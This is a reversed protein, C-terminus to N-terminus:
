TCFDYLMFTSAACTLPMCAAYTTHVAICPSARVAAPNVLAQLLCGEGSGSGQGAGGDGVTTGGSALASGQVLCTSALQQLARWHCGQLPETPLHVQYPNYQYPNYQYPNFQYPNYAFLACLMCECLYLLNGHILADETNFLWACATCQQQTNAQSGLLCGGCATM